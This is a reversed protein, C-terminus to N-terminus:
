VFLLLVVCMFESNKSDGDQVNEECRKVESAILSQLEVGTQNQSTFYINELNMM